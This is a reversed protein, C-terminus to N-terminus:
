ATTIAVESGFSRTILNCILEGADLTPLSFSIKKNPRNFTSRPAMYGVRNKNVQKHEINKKSVVDSNFKNFCATMDTTSKSANRGSNVTGYKKLIRSDM